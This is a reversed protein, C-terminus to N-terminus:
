ASGLRGTLEDRQVEFDELEIEGQDYRAHLDALAALIDAEEDRTLPAPAAGGAERREAKRAFKAAARERREKERQQKQFRAQSM